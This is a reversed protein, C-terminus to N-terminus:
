SCEDVFWMKELAFNPRPDGDFTPGAVEGKNDVVNLCPNDNYIKLAILPELAESNTVAVTWEENFEIYQWGTKNKM